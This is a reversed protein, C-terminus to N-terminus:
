ITSALIQQYIEEKSILLQECGLTKLVTLLSEVQEKGTELHGIKIQYFGELFKIEFKEYLNTETMKMDSLQDLYKRAIKLTEEELCVGVANILLHIRAFYNEQVTGFLHTKDTLEDVLSVLASIPLADLSNGLIMLEYKGWYDVGFLYDTLIRSSEESIKNNDIACMFSEIM